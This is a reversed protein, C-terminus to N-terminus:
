CCCCCNNTAAVASRMESIRWPSDALASVLGQQPSTYLLRFPVHITSVCVDWEDGVVASESRRNNSFPFVGHILHSVCLCLSCCRVCVSEEM